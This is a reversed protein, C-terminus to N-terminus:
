FLVLCHKKIVLEETTNHTQKCRPMCVDVSMVKPLNTHRALIVNIEILVSIKM